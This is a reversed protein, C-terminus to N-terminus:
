PWSFALNCAHFDNNSEDSASAVTYGKKEPPREQLTRNSIWHDSYLHGFVAYLVGRDVEVGNDPGLRTNMPRPTKWEHVVQAEGPDLSDVLLARQIHWAWSRGVVKAGKPPLLCMVAHRHDGRVKFRDFFADDAAVPWAGYASEDGARAAAILREREERGLLKPSQWDMNKYRDRDFAPIPFRKSM